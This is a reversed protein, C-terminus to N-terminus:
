HSESQQLYAALEADLQAISRAEAAFGGAARIQALFATQADSLVDRGIKIEVACFRGTRRCYGLVDSIGPTASGARYGGFSADYVAHNGQRWAVFGRLALLQLVAATLANAPSQGKKAQKRPRAPGQDADAQGTPRPAPAARPRGYQALYQAAPIRTTM